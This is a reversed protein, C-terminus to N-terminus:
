KQATRAKPKEGRMSELEKLLETQDEQSLHEVPPLLISTKTKLAAKKQVTKKEILALPAEPVVKILDQPLNERKSWAGPNKPLKLLEVAFPRVFKNKLAWDRVDPHHLAIFGLAALFFVRLFWKVTSFIFMVPM